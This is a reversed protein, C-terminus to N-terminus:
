HASSCRAVLRYEGPESARFSVALWGPYEAAVVQLKRGDPAFLVFEAGPAGTELLIEAPKGAEMELTLTYAEGAAMHFLSPQNPTLRTSAEEMGVSAMSAVPFLM